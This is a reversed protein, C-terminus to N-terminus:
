SSSSLSSLLSSSLLLLLLIMSNYFYDKFERWNEAKQKYENRSLPKIHMVRRKMVCGTAKSELSGIFQQTYNENCYSRHSKRTYFYASSVHVFGKFHGASTRVFTGWQVSGSGEESTSIVNHQACESDGMQGSFFLSPFKTEINNASGLSRPAKPSATNFLHVVSHFPTISPWTPVHNATIWHETIVLSHYAVETDRLM